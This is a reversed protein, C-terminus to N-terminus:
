RPLWVFYMEPSQSKTFLSLLPEPEPEPEVRQHFFRVVVEGGQQGFFFTAFRIRIM